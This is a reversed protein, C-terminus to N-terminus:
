CRGQSVQVNGGGVKEWTWTRGHLFLVPVLPQAPSQKPSRAGESSMKKGLWTSAWWIRFLEWQKGLSSEELWATFSKWKRGCPGQSVQIGERASQEGALNQVRELVRGVLQRVGLHQFSELRWCAEHCLPRHASFRLTAFFCQLRHKCIDM